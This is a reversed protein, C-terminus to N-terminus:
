DYLSFLDASFPVDTGIFTFYGTPLVPVAFHINEQSNQEHNIRTKEKKTFPSHHIVRKFKKKEFKVM